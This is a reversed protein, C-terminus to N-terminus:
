LEEEREDKDQASNMSANIRLLKSTFFFSPLTVGLAAGILISLMCDPIWMRSVFYAAVLYVISFVQRLMTVSAFLQPRNTLTRRAIIYNVGAIAAGPVFAAAACGLEKIM